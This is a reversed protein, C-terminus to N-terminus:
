GDLVGPGFMAEMACEESCYYERQVDLVVDDGEDDEQSGMRDGVAAMDEAREVTDCGSCLIKLNDAEPELPDFGAPFPGSQADVCNECVCGDEISVVPHMTRGADPGVDCVVCYDDAHPDSM